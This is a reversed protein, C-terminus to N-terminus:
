RERDERVLEVSDGMIGYRAYLQERHEDIRRAVEERRRVREEHQIQELVGELSDLGRSAAEEALWNYINDSVNLTRSM